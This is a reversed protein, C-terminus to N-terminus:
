REMNKKLCSLDISEVQGSLIENTAYQNVPIKRDLTYLEKRIKNQEEAGELFNKNPDNWYWVFYTHIMHKEEDYKRKCRLVDGNNMLTDEPLDISEFEKPSVSHKEEKWYWVVM